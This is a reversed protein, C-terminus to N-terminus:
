SQVMPNMAMLGAIQPSYKKLKKKRADFFCIWPYNVIPIYNIGHNGIPQPQRTSNKSDLSSRCCRSSAEPHFCNRPPSPCRHVETIDFLMQGDYFLSAGLVGPHKWFYPYGLIFPKYHFVRNVHIIQPYRRLRFTKGELRIMKWPRTINFKPLHLQFFHQFVIIFCVTNLILDKSTSM